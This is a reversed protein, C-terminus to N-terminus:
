LLLLPLIETHFNLEWSEVARVYRNVRMLSLGPALLRNRYSRRPMRQQRLPENARNHTDIGEADFGNTTMENIQTTNLSVIATLRNQFETRARRLSAAEGRRAASM